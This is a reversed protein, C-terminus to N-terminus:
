ALWETIGDSFWSRCSPEGIQSRYCALARLKRCVQDTDGVVEVGDRVRGGHRTYTQFRVVRAGFVRVALKGVMDHQMVGWGTVPIEAEDHGNAEFDVAPALVTEPALRDDIARMAAEVADWDPEDDRYPWQQWSLGLEAMACESEAQRQQQTVGAHEQTHSTLVTVVHANLRQATFACFLAVDDAHPELALVSVQM